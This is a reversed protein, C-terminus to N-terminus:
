NPNMLLWVKGSEELVNGQWGSVMLDPMGDGNMDGTTALKYGATDLEAEGPFIHDADSLSYTGPGALSGSLVLYGSGAGLLTDTHWMGGVVIDDLGDRDFDGAPGAGFGAWDGADAGTFGYAADALSRTGPAAMSAGTMVYAKGAADGAENSGYSATMVDAVGDGDFDGVANTGYGVADDGTEGLWARDVDALSYTAGRELLDIDAGLFVYIKGAGHEGSPAMGVGGEQNRQATTMFDGLGDGDIDGAPSNIYGAEDGEAEGDWAFDADDPFQLTRKKKLSSALVLYAKGANEGGADFGYAGTILDNLGDGDVDGAGHISHGLRDLVQEGVFAYDSDGLSMTGRGSLGAAFVLYAKGSDYGNADSLYGSMVIDPLGDGDVDGASNLSHGAWDGGCRPDDPAIDECDPDDEVRGAEGVFGWSADALSMQREVGLDKGMLLYCKGADMGGEDNWYAAILVDDLGDGDVDGAPAVWGGAGDGAGEGRFLYDSDALPVVQDDWGRYGSGIDVSAEVVPGETVGDSAWARCTWDQGEKLHDGSVTDGPLDGRRAEEFPAGDVFWAVSTEVSDGDIDVPLVDVRCQLDRGGARPAQPVVSIGPATPPTNWGEEGTDPGPLGDIPVCDGSRVRGFGEGCPPKDEACGVLILWWLCRM